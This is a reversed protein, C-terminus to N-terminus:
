GGDEAKFSMRLRARQEVPQGDRLIPEFRYRKMATIAANDFVRSPQSASVVVDRVGGDQEIIFQMEVWGSILAELAERPYEPAARRRVRLSSAQVITDDIAGAAQPRATTTTAPPKAAESPTAAPGPDPAVGTGPADIAAPAPNLAVAQRQQAEDVRRRM